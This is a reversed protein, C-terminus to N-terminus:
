AEKSNEKNTKLEKLIKMNNDIINEIEKALISLEQISAETDIQIEEIKLEKLGDKVLVPGVKIKLKM